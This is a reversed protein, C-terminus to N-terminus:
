YGPIKDIKDSIVATKNVADATLVEELSINLLSEKVNEYSM